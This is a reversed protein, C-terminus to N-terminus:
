GCISASPRLYTLRLHVGIFASLNQITTLLRTFTQAWGNDRATTYDLIWFADAGDTALIDAAMQPMIAVQDDARGHRHGQRARQDLLM